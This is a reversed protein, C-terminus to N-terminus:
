FAFKYRRRGAGDGMQEMLMQIDFGEKRIRLDYYLLTGVVAPFPALLTAVVQVLLNTWISPGLVAGVAFGAGFIAVFQLLVALGLTVAIRGWNEKALARSREFSESASAGEVMVAIPMAFTVIMAIIGPIVLLLLGLILFFGRIFAAGWISGFRSAVRKLVEGVEVTRGLYAESVVVVAAAIVYNTLLGDLMTVWRQGQASTVMVQLVMVPSTIILALLALQEYRARIMQFAADLLESPPRSRFAPTEM